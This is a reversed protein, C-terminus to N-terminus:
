GRCRRVLASLQRLPGVIGKDYAVDFYYKNEVVKVFWGLRERVRAPIGTNVVYMRYAVYAGGIAILASVALLVWELPSRLM